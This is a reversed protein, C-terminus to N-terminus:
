RRRQRAGTDRVVDGDEKTFPPLKDLPLIELVTESPRCLKTALSTRVLPRNM